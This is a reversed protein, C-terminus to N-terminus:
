VNMPDYPVAAFRQRCGNLRCRGNLPVTPLATNEDYRVGAERESESLGGCIAAAIIHRFDEGLPDTTEDDEAAIRYAMAELRRYTALDVTIRPLDVRTLLAVLRARFGPAPQGGPLPDTSM